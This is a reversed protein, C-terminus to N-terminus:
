TNLLFLSTVQFVLHFPGYQSPLIYVIYIQILIYGM